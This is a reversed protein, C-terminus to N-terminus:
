SNKRAEEDWRQYSKMYRERREPDDWVGAEELAKRREANIFVENPKLPRTRGGVSFVPGKPKKSVKQPKEEPEDDDEEFIDDTKVKTKKKVVDPLRKSVRRSLEEWYEPEEPSLEGERALREEIARALFSDEDSLKPDFWSNDKLWARGNEVAERSPGQAIPTEKEEEKKKKGEKTQLLSNKVGDLQTKVRLAETATAGDKNTVAQSHIEEAERIQGDVLGIRQDISLVEQQDQRAALESQRRELQENRQRLFNLERRNGAERQRRRKREARRSERIAEREADTGGEEEEEHGVKEDSSESSTEQKGETELETELTEESEAAGDGVAVLKEEKKEEDKKDAM